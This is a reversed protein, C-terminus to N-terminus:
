FGYKEKRLRFAKEGGEMINTIEDKIVTSDIAGEAKISGRTQNGTERYDCCIVLESDGNVVLNANHSSFILQRKRKAKCINEIIDGIAKNDIDEEPQDIILPTGSQNLLVTLLATAQQGASAEAFPIVDGLENNTVYQFKPNFEVREVAISIWKEPTFFEIIRALNGENLGCATLNETEPLIITKDETYKIEALQRLENLIENWIIIPSEYELIHDCLAQIREERIRTKNFATTLHEKIKQTDISKSIDAIIFGDSMQAFNQAQTSLLELIEEHLRFWEARYNNFESEPNGIEKLINTRENVARSLEILRSEIRKIEELQSKNSSTKEKATEYLTEFDSKSKNWKELLENLSKLNDEDLSKHLNSAIGQIEAFKGKVFEEIENILEVNVYDVDAPFPEPYNSLFDVFENIKETVISIESSINDLVHEENDYKPKQSIIGQDEESIGTLSKRLNLVQDKLSKIELNIQEIENQLEKKRLLNSYTRSMRKANDSLRLNIDSLNNAIPKEIFRKLEKTRIGVSSLQKQSYAQVPLIQRIEDERVFEFDEEGIKLQIENNVSNRKIIHNVGNLNFTIRIDGSFPILTRDILLKRRKEIDSHEDFENITSPQDCLGWRLYELITSKGTGRGGILANYQQNFKISFSGLFKSNTVDIQTIFIQPLEPIDQSLRSRKALCAQRLAEATPIAWKVWTSYQGLISFDRDRHDSTQFVSIPKFGWERANGNLINQNGTGVQDLSGDVYGGVCPMNKYHEAFGRRLISGHGESVNPLLIYKNKLEQVADFKEYFEKLGNITASPIPITENTSPNELNNPVIGLLNLVLGFYEEPFNSDLVLIAQCSAPNSFTIEIGPFVILKNNENVPNGDDDLENEAAEKIIPYFAFDHHDTIAVANLGLERCKRVFEDAYIKRDDQSVPRDGNWNIDRPTHVQFDCKYFHAGKDM